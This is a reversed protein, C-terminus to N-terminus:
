AVTNTNLSYKIGETWDGGWQGEKTVCLAISVPLWSPPCGSRCGRSSSGSRQQRGCLRNGPQMQQSEKTTVKGTSSECHVARPRNGKSQCRLTASFAGNELVALDKMWIWRWNPMKDFDHVRNLFLTAVTVKNKINSILPQQQSRKRLLLQANNSSLFVGVVIVVCDLCFIFM